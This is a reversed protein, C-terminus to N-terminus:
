GIPSSLAIYVNSLLYKNQYIAKVAIPIVVTKALMHLLFNNISAFKEALM